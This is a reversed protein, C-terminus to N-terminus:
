SFEKVVRSVVTDLDEDKLGLTDMAFEPKTTWDGEITGLLWVLEEIADVDGGDAKAKEEKEFKKSDFKDVKFSSGTAKEYAKVVENQSVLFSQVFLVQNATAEPRLLVAATAEGIRSLTSASAKIEGDDLVAARKEKVWVHFFKPDWDFFHGCVLGTWTFRENEKALQTLQNRLDTKHKYLPVLEQAKPTSSDCSGFDAPVFRQVGAKVCALALREQLEIQSGKITVVVADQGQFIKALADVAFDDDVTAVEVGEPYNSASKSSARKLVTVQFEKSLLAHLIAPGLKGDAGLLVVKKIAM